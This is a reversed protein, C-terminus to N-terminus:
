KLPDVPADEVPRVMTKFLTRITAGRQGGGRLCFSIHRYIPGGSRSGKPTGSPSKTYSHIVMSSWPHWNSTRISISASIIISTGICKVVSAAGVSYGALPLNHSNGSAMGVQWFQAGRRFPKQGACKQCTPNKRALPFKGWGDAAAVTARFAASSSSSILGWFDPLHSDALQSAPM